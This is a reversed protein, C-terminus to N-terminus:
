SFAGFTGEPIEVGSGGETGGTTNAMDMEPSAGCDLANLTLDFHM